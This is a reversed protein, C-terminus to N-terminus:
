VAFMDIFEHKFDNFAGICCDRKGNGDDNKEAEAPSYTTGKIFRIGQCPGTKASSLYYCADLV